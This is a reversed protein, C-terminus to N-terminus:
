TGLMSSRLLFPSFQGDQSIQCTVFTVMETVDCIKLVSQEHVLTYGRNALVCFAGLNYFSEEALLEIIKCM